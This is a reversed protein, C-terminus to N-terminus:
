APLYGGVLLPSPLTKSWGFALCSAEVGSCSPNDPRRLPSPSLPAKYLPVGSDRIALILLSSDPVAFCGPCRFSQPFHHKLFSFLSYYNLQYLKWSHWILNLHTVTTINAFTEVWRWRILLIGLLPQWAIIRFPPFPFFCPRLIWACTERDADNVWSNHRYWVIM